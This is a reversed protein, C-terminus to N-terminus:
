AADGLALWGRAGEVHATAQFHRLVATSARGRALVVKTLADALVCRAAVVCAFRPRVSTGRGRPDVHPGRPESRSSALAGDRLEVVPTVTMTRARLAIREATRGMVRLDGGANVCAERVGLATLREIACDVAFGKAIGGVDIWLRRHFRVTGDDGIEIDRWSAAPDAPPAADPAPLWGAAVLRPAVTIDFCGGSRAALAHAWRLVALTDADVRVPRHMAERNLRAIDSDARHFSMRAEIRAIEEFAADIARHARAGDLGAVRVAVYSGLLPRAREVPPKPLCSTM